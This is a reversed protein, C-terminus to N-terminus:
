GYVIKKATALNSKAKKQHEKLFPIFFDIAFQKLESALLSGKTFEKGLKNLEKTKPYHFKLM